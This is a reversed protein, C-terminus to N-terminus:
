TTHLSVQLFFRVAAWPLTAHAPDYQVVLDGLEKFKNVWKAIKEFVERLIVEDGNSKRFRWQKRRSEEIRAEVDTLILSSLNQTDKEDCDLYRRDEKSLLAAAEEWLSKKPRSNRRRSMSIKIAAIRAFAASAPGGPKDVESAM